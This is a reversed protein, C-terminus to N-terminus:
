RLVSGCIGRGGEDGVNYGDECVILTTRRPGPSLPLLVTKFCIFIRSALSCFACHQVGTRGRERSAIGQGGVTPMRRPHAQM